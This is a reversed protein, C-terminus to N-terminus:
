DRDSPSGAGLPPRVPHTMSIIIGNSASEHFTFQAAIRRVPFGYFGAARAQSYSREIYNEM